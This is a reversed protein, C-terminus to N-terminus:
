FRYSIGVSLMGLDAEDFDFVEYEGRIQVRGANFRLGIGYAPDSGDDSSVASNVIADADWAIVGAKGFLDIPGLAVAAVGFVSLGTSEIRLREGQINANPKGFNNYAGEIGLSIASLQWDFGAFFKYSTDDENFQGLGPLDGINDIEVTASGVSGGVYFGSDANAAMPGLTTVTLLVGAVIMSRNTKM